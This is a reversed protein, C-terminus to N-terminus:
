SLLEEPYEVDFSESDIIRNRVTNLKGIKNYLDEQDTDSVPSQIPQSSDGENDNSSHPEQRNIQRIISKYRLVMSYFQVAGKLENRRIGGLLGIKSTTSEYVTTPISNETPVDNASLQRSPPSEIREMQNACAEIGKMEEVETLLARYLKKREWFQRVIYILLASSFSVAVGIFLQWGSISIQNPPLQTTANFIINYM